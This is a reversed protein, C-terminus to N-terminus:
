AADGSSLVHFPGRVGASFQEAAALAGLIRKKADQQPTASLSGLAYAHGCGVADYGCVCEGVQYDSEVRFLRGSYGVLFDGASEVENDRRALGGSKLCARVADIFETVMYRMIDTDDHRKPPTFSYALLQGMRFSSTFGMVFPGNRFVKRDARVRSDWGQVGASDGGIFVKDGQVIGVICTM